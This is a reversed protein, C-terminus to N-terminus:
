LHGSGVRKPSGRADVALQELQADRDRFSGHGSEQGSLTARRRLGPLREEVVM